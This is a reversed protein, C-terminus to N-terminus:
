QVSYIVEGCQAPSLEAGTPLLAAPSLKSSLRSGEEIIRERFREGAIPRSFLYGQGFQCGLETLRDILREDELGEAIVQLHLDSALNLVATLLPVLEPGETLRSIFKRDLKVFDIPLEHLCSLSSYGTGFDDISVKVGLARLERLREIIRQPNDMFTAETLELCLTGAPIRFERLSAEVINTLNPLLLQLRSLNVHVSLQIQENPRLRHWSELEKCASRIVQDGITVIMGTEEAITLFEHAGLIGKTPHHWRLLAEAGQTQRNSLNVIPQYDLVFEGRAIGERMDSEMQLRTQVHERFQQDFLTYRAKGDIKSRYMALDADRLMDIASAYRFESTVVGISVTSCVTQGRLQYTDALAGLLRDAVQVADRPDALQDLLVVFEDGGLRAPVMVSDNSRLTVSIRKAIERLLEDGADHGLSDNILKFRDFDMFLLAFHTGDQRDITAQIRDIIATRNALGTLNDSFAIKHVEAALRRRETIDHLILIAAVVKGKANRLPTANGVVWRNVGDEGQIIFEEDNTRAGTVLARMLPHENESGVSGDARKLPWDGIQTAPSYKGPSAINSAFLQFAAQNAFRVIGDPAVAILVGSPCHEFGAELLSEAESAAEEAHERNAVELLVQKSFSDLKDGMRDFARALEGLEDLRRSRIRYLFNGRGYEDAAVILEGIPRALTHRISLFLTVCSLLGAIMATLQSNQNQGFLVLGAVGIGSIMLGLFLKDGISM